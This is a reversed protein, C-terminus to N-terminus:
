SPSCPAVTGSLTVGAPILQGHQRELRAEWPGRGERGGAGIPKVLDFVITISHKGTAVAPADSEHGPAAEIPRPAKRHDDSGDLREGHAGANDVSFDDRAVAVAQGVKLQEAPSQMMVGCDETGEIKEFEITVTEPVFRDLLALGLQCLEEVATSVAEDEVADKIIRARDNKLM